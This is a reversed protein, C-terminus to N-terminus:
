SPAMRQKIADEIHRRIDPMDEMMTRFERRGMVVLKMPTDAVVTATRRDTEVLGIEGFFDGSGLEALKEDGRMVRATGDEIVFFEYAFKGQDALRQGAPVDVEDALRGMKSLAKKSLRAFLPIKKIREPDM